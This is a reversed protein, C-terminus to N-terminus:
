GRGAPVFWHLYWLSSGKVQYCNHADYYGSSRIHNMQARCASLTSYSSTGSRPSAEASSSPVAVLAGAALVGAALATAAFRSISRLRPAVATTM